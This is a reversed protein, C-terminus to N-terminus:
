GTTNIRNRMQNTLSGTICHCLASTRLHGILRNTLTQTGAATQAMQKRCAQSTISPLTRFGPACIKSLMVLGDCMKCYYLYLQKNLLIYYYSVGRGGGLGSIYLQELFTCLIALPLDPSPALSIRHETVPLGKRTNGFTPHMCYLRLEGGLTDAKLLLVDAMSTQSAPSPWSVGATLRHDAKKSDGRLDGHQKIPCTHTAGGENATLWDTKEQM